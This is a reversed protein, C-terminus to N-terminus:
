QDDDSADERETRRLIQRETEKRRALEEQEEFWSLGSEIVLEMEEPSADHRNVVPELIDEYFADDNMAVRWDTLRPDLSGDYLRLLFVARVPDLEEALFAEVRLDIGRGTDFEAIAAGANIATDQYHDFNDILSETEDLIAAIFGRGERTIDLPPNSTSPSEEQQTILGESRLSDLAKRLALPSEESIALPVEHKDLFYLTTLARMWDLLEDRSPWFGHRVAYEVACYSQQLHLALGPEDKAPEILSSVPADLPVAEGTAANLLLSCRWDRWEDCAALFVAYIDPLDPNARLDFQVAIAQRQELDSPFSRDLLQSVSLARYEAPMELLVFDEPAM